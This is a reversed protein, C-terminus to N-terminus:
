RVEIFAAAGHSAVLAGAQVQFGQAYFVGGLLAQAAPIPVTTRVFGNRDTTVPLVVDAAVRLKCGGVLTFPLRLGGFQSESGGLALAAPAFATGPGIDLLFKSNGLFPQTGYIGFRGARPCADGFKVVRSREAAIAFDTPDGPLPGAIMLWPQVRLDFTRFRKMFAHARGGLVVAGYNQTVRVRRSAGSALAPTLKMAQPTQYGFSIAMTGDAHAIMRHSVATPLEVIGTIEVPNHGRFMPRDNTLKRTGLDFWFSAADARPARTGSQILLLRGSFAYLATLRPLTALRVSSGGARPLAFLGGTPGTATAAILDDGGFALDTVRAPVVGLLRQQVVAAGRFSLRVLISVGGNDLALVVDHTAPDLAVALPPRTDTNFRGLTTTKGNNLDVTLLTTQRPAATATAVLAHGPPVQAAGLTTMAVVAALTHIRM